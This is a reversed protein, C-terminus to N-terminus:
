SGIITPTIFFLLEQSQNNIVTHKFLNGIVPLSGLFPVQFITNQNNNIMVGGIVVTQGDAVLVKTNASQTDIAPIGNVPPIGNDIADNEVKVDLFVHKDATIQPTVKLDLTVNFFQVSITNNITTQVPIRVGQQVEAEANDQTIVEPQSLVHGLGRQEAATLIADLRFSSSANIFGLGSTPATAGLNVNLPLLGSNTAYKPNAINLATQGVGVTNVGGVENAANGAGFGLQVGLERVFQRSASVVKARIEVQPTRRDLMTVLSDIAPLSSPHVHLILSNTRPDVSVGEQGHLIFHKSLLLAEIKPASAYSLRIVRTEYPEANERAVKLAHIEKDQAELTKESAIYLVNGELKRGLSYNRLVLDLAQDWPVDQLVMTVTGHVSPDVIVNLGSIQNILRFFDTLSAHKLNLTIREGTYVTPKGTGPTIGQIAVRLPEKLSQPAVGRPTFYSAQSVPRASAAGVSMSAPRPAAEASPRPPTAARPQNDAVTAPASIPRSAAPAAAVPVVHAPAPAPHWASQAAQRSAALQAAARRQAALRAARRKAALKAEALREAKQKAEAQRKAQAQREAQLKAQAQRKRQAQRRAALNAQAAASAQAAPAPQDPIIIRLGHAAAQLRPTVPHHLDLVLRVTTPNFQGARLDAIAATAVTWHRRPLSFASGKFDLVWRDPHRLTFASHQPLGPLTAVNIVTRTPQKIVTLRWIKALPAPEGKATPPVSAPAASKPKQANAIPAAAALPTNATAASPLTLALLLAPALRAFRSACRLRPRFTQNANAIMTM